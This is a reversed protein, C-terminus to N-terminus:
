KKGVDVDMDEKKEREMNARISKEKTSYIIM